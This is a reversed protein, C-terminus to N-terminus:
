VVSHEPGHIASAQLQHQQAKEIYRGPSSDLNSALYIQETCDNKEGIEGKWLKVKLCTM